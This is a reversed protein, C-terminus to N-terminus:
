VQGKESDRISTLVTKIAKDQVATKDITVGAKQMSDYSLVGLFRYRTFQLIEMIAAEIAPDVAAALAPQPTKMPAVAAPKIGQLKEMKDTIALLQKQFFAFNLGDRGRLLLARIYESRSVKLAKAEADLLDAQTKSLTVSFRAIDKTDM